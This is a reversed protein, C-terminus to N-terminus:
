PKNQISHEAALRMAETHDRRDLANVLDLHLQHRARVFQPLPGATGSEVAVTHSHSVADEILLPDLADRIRVAYGVGAADDDLTRM